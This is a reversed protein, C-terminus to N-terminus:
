YADVLGVVNASGAWDEDLAVSGSTSDFAVEYTGVWVELDFLPLAAIEFVAIEIM